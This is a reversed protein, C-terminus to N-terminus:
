TSLLSQMVHFVTSATFVDGAALVGTSKEIV